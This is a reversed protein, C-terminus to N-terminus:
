FGATACGRGAGLRWGGGRCCGLLGQGDRRCGALRGRALTAGVRSANHRADHHADNDDCARNSATEEVHAALPVLLDLLLVAAVGCDAGEDALRGSAARPGHRIGPQIWHHSLPPHAVAADGIVLIVGPPDKAYTSSV